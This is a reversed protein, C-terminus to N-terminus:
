DLDLKFLKVTIMSAQSDFLSPFLSYIVEISVISMEEVISMEKWKWKSRRTMEYWKHTSIWSVTVDIQLM